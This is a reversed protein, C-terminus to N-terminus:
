PLLPKELLVGAMPLGGRSTHNTQGTIRYGRAQYFGVAPLSAHIRSLTVGLGRLAAEGHALLAGGTGRGQHDAAVYLGIVKESSRSCFGIPVDNEDTAVAFIEGADRARAYDQATLGHAWSQREALTYFGDSTALIADTHIAFLYAGDDDRFPRLRISM